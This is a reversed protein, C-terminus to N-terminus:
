MLITSKMHISYCNELASTHCGARPKRPLQWRRGVGGGLGGLLLWGLAAGLGAVAPLSNPSSVQLASLLFQLVTQLLLFPSREEWGSAMRAEERETLPQYWCKPYEKRSPDGQPWQQRALSKLALRAVGKSKATAIVKPGFNGKYFTAFDIPFLISDFDFREMAVLAVEESHASFGLYRIKEQKRAEIFVEM